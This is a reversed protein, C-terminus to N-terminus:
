HSQVIAHRTHSLQVGLGLYPGFCTIPRLESLWSICDVRDESWGASYLHNYVPPAGVCSEVIINQCIFDHLLPARLLRMAALDLRIPLVDTGGFDPRRGYSSSDLSTNAYEEYYRLLWAEM